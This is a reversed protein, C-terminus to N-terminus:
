AIIYRLLLDCRKVCADGESLREVGIWSVDM